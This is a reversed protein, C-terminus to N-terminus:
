DTTAVGARPRAGAGLVLSELTEYPQAGVVGKRGIVFTPVGTVGLSLARHWERDVPERYRRTELIEAAEERDLGVSAALEVLTVRDGIDRGEAFHARYLANGITPRGEAIGWAALEQALRTNPIRHAPVFPLGEGAMLRALRAHAQDIMSGRGAFLEDLTTGGEPIEPHLPHHTV